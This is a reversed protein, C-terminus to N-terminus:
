SILSSLHNLKDLLMYYFLLTSPDDIDTFVQAQVLEYYFGKRALLDSHKGMEVINGEKMVIIKDANKITSLRHAIIITTRGEAAKFKDM